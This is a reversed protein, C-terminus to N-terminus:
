ATKGVFFDDFIRFAFLFFEDPFSVVAGLSRGFPFTEGLFLAVFVGLEVCEDGFVVFRVTFCLLVGFVVGFISCIFGGTAMGRGKAGKPIENRAKVGYVIGVISIILGILAPFNAVFPALLVSVIGAIGLILSMLANFNTGQNNNIPQSFPQQFVQQAQQQNTQQAPQQDAQQAPEQDPQRPIQNAPLPSNCKTCVLADDPLQANCKACIKM